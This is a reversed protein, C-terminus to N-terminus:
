NEGFSRELFYNQGHKNQRQFSRITQISIDGKDIEEVPEIIKQPYRFQINKEKIEKKMLGGILILSALKSIRDILKTKTEM